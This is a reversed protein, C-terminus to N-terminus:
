GGLSDNAFVQKKFSPGEAMEEFPFLDSTNVPQKEVPFLIDKLCYPYPPTWDVNPTIFSAPNFDLDGAQENSSIRLFGSDRTLFRVLDMSIVLLRDPSQIGGTNLSKLEQQQDVFRGQVTMAIVRRNNPNIVVQKVMGSLGDLFYITEGIIPQLFPQDPSGLKGGSIRVHNIVGRVNPNDSACKEALLKISEDTV